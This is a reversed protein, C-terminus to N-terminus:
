TQGMENTWNQMSLNSENIMCQDCAKKTRILTELGLDKAWISGQFLNIALLELKAWKM